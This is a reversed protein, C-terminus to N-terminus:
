AVASTRFIVGAKMAGAVQVFKTIKEASPALLYYTAILGLLFLEWGALWVLGEIAVASGAIAAEGITRVHLFVLGILLLTLVYSFIRRFLFRSEPLPDQPDAAPPPGASVSMQRESESMLGM